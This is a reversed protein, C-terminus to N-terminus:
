SDNKDGTEKNEQAKLFANTEKDFDSEIQQTKNFKGYEAFAKQEAQQRSIKGYGELFTNVSDAFGEQATTEMKSVVLDM